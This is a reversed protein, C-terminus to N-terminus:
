KTCDGVRKGSYKMTMAGQATAMNMRGTYSDGEFVMQGDGTMSQAGTCAMKWTIRNNDIKQDTVKCSKDNANPGASPLTSSPDKLEEKTVCRATKMEPMKMPMGPMEMQAVVEWRGERM